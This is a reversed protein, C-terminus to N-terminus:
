MTLSKSDMFKGTNFVLESKRPNRNFHQDEDDHKNQSDSRRKKRRQSRTFIFRHTV